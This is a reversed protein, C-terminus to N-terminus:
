SPYEWSTPNSHTHANVGFTLLLYKWLATAHREDRCHLQATPWGDHFQDCAVADAAEQGRSQDRYWRLSTGPLKVAVEDHSTAYYTSQM